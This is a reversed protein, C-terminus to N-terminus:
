GTVTQVMAWKHMKGSLRGTVKEKELQQHSVSIM